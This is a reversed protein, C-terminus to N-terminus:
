LGKREMRIRGDLIETAGTIPNIVLTYQRDERDALHIWTPTAYGQPLFRTMARDEAVLGDLATEVDVFKLGEPLVTEGVPLSSDPEYKLTQDNM